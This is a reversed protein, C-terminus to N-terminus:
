FQIPVIQGSYPWDEPREVLGARVPNMYVYHWKERYSDDSRVIHDFFGPQWHPRPISLRDLEVSLAKKLFGVTPGIRYDRRCQVFFHIHDPMIVYEGCTVGKESQLAMVRSFHSHFFSSALVAKRNFACITIFYLPPDFRNFVLSM